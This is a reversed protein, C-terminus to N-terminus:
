THFDISCDVLQCSGAGFIDMAIRTTSRNIIPLLARSQAGRGEFRGLQGACLYHHRHGRHRDRHDIRESDRSESAVSAADHDSSAVSHRTSLAAAGAQALLEEPEPMVFGAQTTMTISSNLAYKTKATTAPESAATSTGQQMAGTDLGPTMSKREATSPPHREREHSKLMAPTVLRSLTDLQKHVHVHDANLEQAKRYERQAEVYRKHQFYGDARAIYAENCAPSIQLAQHYKKFAEPM